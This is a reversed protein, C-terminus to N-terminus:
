MTKLCVSLLSEVYAAELVKKQGKLLADTKARLDKALQLGAAGKESVYQAASSM